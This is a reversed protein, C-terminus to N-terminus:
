FIDTLAPFTNFRIFQYSLVICGHGRMAVGDLYATEVHRIAPLSLDM